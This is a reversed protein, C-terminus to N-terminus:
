FGASVAVDAAGDKVAEITLWLSTGKGRRLAQSPKDSMAVATDTHVM